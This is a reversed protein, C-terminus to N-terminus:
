NEKKEESSGGAAAENEAMKTNILNIINIM